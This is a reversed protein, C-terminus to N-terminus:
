REKKKPKFEDCTMDPHIIGAVLTCHDYGTTDPGKRIMTCIGCHERKTGLRYDVSDKSVKNTM